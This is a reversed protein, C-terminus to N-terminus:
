IKQFIEQKALWQQGAETASVLQYLEHMNERASMHERPTKLAQSKHLDMAKIKIDRLETVNVVHTTPLNKNFVYRWKGADVQFFTHFFVAPTYASKQVALTSAISVAVHDLHYYWGTHDFTVLVDPQYEDILSVCDNLLRGWVDLNNIQGDAYDLIQGEAGLLACVAAFEQRRVGALGGAAELEEQTVEIVTSAEGATMSVIKVQHGQDTLLKITGGCGITEDDPHAFLFLFKM